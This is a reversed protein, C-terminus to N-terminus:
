QINTAKCPSAKCFKNKLFIPFIPLYLISLDTSTHCIIQAAALAALFLWYLVKVVSYHHTEEIKSLAYIAGLLCLFLM